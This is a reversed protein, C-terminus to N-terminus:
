NPTGSTFFLTAAPEIVVGEGFTVPMIQLADYEVQGAGFLRVLPEIKVEGGTRNWGIAAFHRWDGDTSPLRYDNAWLVAPNDSVWITAIADDSLNSARYYLSVLYPRDPSLVIERQSDKPNRRQWFGARARSKAGDFQVWLGEIRAYHNGRLLTLDDQGGIFNAANFPARNFMDSWIWGVFNDGGWIEFDGNNVLDPGLSVAEIPLQLLTAAIRKNDTRSALSEQLMAIDRFCRGDEPGFPDISTISSSDFQTCTKQLHYIVLLDEPHRQYYQMYWNISQQLNEQLGNSSFLKEYILGLRLRAQDYNDDLLLTEQYSNIALELKGQRHYFEGLLFQWAPDEPYCMILDSLAQELGPLGGRQWIWVRAVALATHRNWVGDKLLPALIGFTYNLLPDFPMIAAQSFYRLRSIAQEVGFEDSVQSSRQYLRYNAWLDDPRLTLVRLFAETSDGHLLALAVMDAVQPTFVPPPVADYFHVVEEYAQVTVLAKLLDMYVLAHQSSWPILQQAYAVVKNKDNRLLALRLLGWRPSLASPNINASSNFLSEIFESESPSLSRSESDFVNGLRLLSVNSLTYGVVFPCKLLLGVIFLGGIVHRWNVIKIRNKFIM